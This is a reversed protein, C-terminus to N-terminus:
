GCPYQSFYPFVRLITLAPKERDYSPTVFISLSFSLFFETLNSQLFQHSSLTKCISTRIQISTNLNHLPPLFLYPFEPPSLFLSQQFSDPSMVTAQGMWLILCVCWYIYIYVYLHTHAHKYIGMCNCTCSYTHIHVSIHIYIGAQPQLNWRQEM